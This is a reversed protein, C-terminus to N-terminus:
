EAGKWEKELFETRENILVLKQSMRLIERQDICVINEGKTKIELLLRGINNIADLINMLLDTNNNMRPDSNCCIEHKVTRRLPAGKVIYRAPPFGILSCFEDLTEKRFNIYGNEDIRSSRLDINYENRLESSNIFANSADELMLNGNCM